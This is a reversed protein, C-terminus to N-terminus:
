QLTFYSDKPSKKYFLSEFLPWFDMADGEGRESEQFVLHEETENPGPIM